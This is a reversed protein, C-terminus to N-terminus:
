REDAVVVSVGREMESCLVPPVLDNLAEQRARDKSVSGVSFGLVIEALCSEMECSKTAVMGRDTEHDFETTIECEFVLRSPSNRGQDWFAGGGVGDGEKGGRRRGENRESGRTSGLDLGRAAERDGLHLGQVCSGCRRLSRQIWQWSIREGVKERGLLHERVVVDRGVKGHGSIEMIIRGRRGEGELFHETRRETGM